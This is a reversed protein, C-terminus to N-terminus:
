QDHEEDSSGGPHIVFGDGIPIGGDAFPEVDLRVADAPIKDIQQLYLGGIQRVKKAPKPIVKRKPADDKLIDFRIFRCLLLISLPGGCHGFEFTKGHLDTTDIEIIDKIVLKQNRCNRDVKWTPQFPSHAFANRLMVSIWHAARIDQDHSNQADPVMFQMASRMALAMMFMSSLDFFSSAYEAQEQRLAITGYKVTHKGHSWELPVDLPQRKFTTALSVASALRFQLEATFLNKIHLEREDTILEKEM